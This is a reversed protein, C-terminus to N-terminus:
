QLEECGLQTFTEDSAHKIDEIDLVLGNWEAAHRESILPYYGDLILNYTHSVITGMVYEREADQAGGREEMAMRCPIDQYIVGGLAKSPEGFSDRGGQKERITVTEKLFGGVGESKMLDPHVIPTGARPV